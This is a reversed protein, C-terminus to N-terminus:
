SNKFRLFFFHLPYLLIMDEKQMKIANKRIPVKIERGLLFRCLRNGPYKVKAALLLFFRFHCIFLNFLLYLSKFLQQSLLFLLFPDRPCDRPH